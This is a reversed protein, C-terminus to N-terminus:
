YKTVRVKKKKSLRFPVFNPSSPSSVHSCVCVVALENSSVCVCV